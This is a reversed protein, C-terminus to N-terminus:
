AGLENDLLRLAEPSDGFAELKDLWTTLKGLEETQEALYKQALQLTMYDGEAVAAKALENCQTTIALEHQYSLECIEPLSKFKERPQELAPVCPLIDLDELYSYAWGAHAAEEESYKTWLKSAGTYGNFNLWKAMALYLRSSKEEEVIRYNILDEIKKSIFAM